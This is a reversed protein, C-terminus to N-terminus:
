VIERGPNFSQRPLWKTGIFHLLFSAPPVTVIAPLCLCLPARDQVCCWSTPTNPLPPRTQSFAVARSGISRPLHQTEV